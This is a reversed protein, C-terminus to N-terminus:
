DHIVGEYELKEIRLEQHGLVESERRFELNAEILALLEAAPAKSYAEITMNALTHNLM